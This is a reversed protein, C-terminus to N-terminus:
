RIWGLPQLYSYRKYLNSLGMQHTARSSVMQIQYHHAGSKLTFGDDSVLDDDLQLQQAQQYSLEQHSRNQPDYRFLRNEKEPEIEFIPHENPYLPTQEKPKLPALEIRHNVIVYYKDNVRTEDYNAGVQYVFSQAPRYLWKPIYTISFLYLLTALPLGIALSFYLQQHYKM